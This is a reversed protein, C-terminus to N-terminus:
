YLEIEVITTDPFSIPSFSLKNNRHRWSQNIGENLTKLDTAYFTQYSDGATSFSYDQSFNVKCLPSYFVLEEIEIVFAPYQITKGVESSDYITVFDGLGEAQSTFYLSDGILTDSHVNFLFKVYATAKRYFIMSQDQNKQLGSAISESSYNENDGIELKLKGDKLQHAYNFKFYGKDDTTTQKLVEYTNCGFECSGDTLILQLPINTMPEYNDDHYLVGEFTHRKVIIKKCATLLLGLIVLFILPKKM